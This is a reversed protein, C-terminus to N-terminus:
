RQPEPRGDMTQRVVRGAANLSVAGTLASRHNDHMWGGMFRPDRFTVV